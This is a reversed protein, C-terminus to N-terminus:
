KTGALVRGGPRRDGARRKSANVPEPVYDCTADAGLARYSFLLLCPGQPVWVLHQRDWGNTVFQQMTEGIEHYDAPLLIEVRLCDDQPLYTSATCLAHGSTPQAVVQPAISLMLMVLVLVLTKM